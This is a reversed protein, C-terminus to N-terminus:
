IRTQTLSGFTKSLKRERETKLDSRQIIHNWHSKLSISHVRQERNSRRSRILTCTLWHLFFPFRLDIHNTTWWTNKIMFRKHSFFSVSEVINMLPSLKVWITFFILFCLSLNCFDHEILSTAAVFFSKLSILLSVKIPWVIPKVKNKHDRKLLIWDTNM